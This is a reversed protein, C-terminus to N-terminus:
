GDDRSGRVKILWDGTQLESAVLKIYQWGGLKWSAARNFSEEDTGGVGLDSFPGGTLESVKLSLKSKVGPPIQVGLFEYDRGLDVEASEKSGEPITAELWRGYIM